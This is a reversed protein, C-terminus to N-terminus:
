FNVDLKKIEENTFGKKLLDYKINKIDLNKRIYKKLLQNYEKKIIELDFTDISIEINCDYGLSFLHNKIKEKLIKNSYKHNSKIKQNVIKEIRDNWFNSDYENLKQHILSIEIGEKILENEIYRPGKNSLNIRDNVFSSLFVDDNILNLKEFKKLLEEKQSELLETDDLINIISKKSYIKKMLKNRLKFFIIMSDNYKKIEDFKSEDIKFGVVLSYKLITEDFLKMITDDDFLVVYENIKKQIINEVKIM